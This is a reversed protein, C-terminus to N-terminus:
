FRQLDSLTHRSVSRIDYDLMRPLGRPDASEDDYGDNSMGAPLEIQASQPFRGHRDINVGGNGQSWVVGSAFYFCFVSVRLVSIASELNM